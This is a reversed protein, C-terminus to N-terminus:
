RDSKGNVWALDLDMLALLRFELKKCSPLLLPPWGCRVTWGLRNGTLVIICVVNDPRSGVVKRNNTRHAVLLAVSEGHGKILHLKPLRGTSKPM